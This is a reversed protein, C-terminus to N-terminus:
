KKFVKGIQHTFIFMQTKIHMEKIKHLQVSKQKNAMQMEERSKRNLDM